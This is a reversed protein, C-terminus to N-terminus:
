RTLYLFASQKIGISNERSDESVILKWTNSIDFSKISKQAYRPEGRQENPYIWIQFLEVEEDNSSNKESHYVGKGASIVGKNGELDRHELQGRLILTIIEMDNHPHMSFGQSPEIIDNNLARLIGFGMRERDHYQSFSFSFRAHLWGHEAHGRQGSRYVQYSMEFEKSCSYYLNVEKM